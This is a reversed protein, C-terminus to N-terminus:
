VCCCLGAVFEWWGFENHLLWVLGYVFAVGVVRLWVVLLFSFCVLGFLCGGFCIVLVWCITLM